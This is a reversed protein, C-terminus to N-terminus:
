LQYKQNWAMKFAAKKEQNELDSQLVLDIIGDFIIWHKKGIKEIIKMADNFTPKDYFLKSAQDNLRKPVIPQLLLIEELAKISNESINDDINAAAIGIAFAGMYFMELEEYEKIIEASNTINKKLKEIKLSYEAEAEKRGDEKADRYKKCEEDSLNEFYKVAAWGVAETISAATTANIFNGLGPIWGLAIQSVGRGITGTAVTGLIATASSKSLEMELVAGLSIIMTIQIPTIVLNDACPLQALGSAATGAAASAGHIIAHCKVKQEDDIYM